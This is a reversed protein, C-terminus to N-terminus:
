MSMLVLAWMGGFPAPMARVRAWGLWPLRATASRARRGSGRWSSAAFSRESAGPLTISANGESVEGSCSALANSSILACPLKAPSFNSM